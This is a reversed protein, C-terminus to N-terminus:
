NQALKKIRSDNPNEIPWIQDTPLTACQLCVHKEPRWLGVGDENWIMPGKSILTAEQKRCHQCLTHADSPM